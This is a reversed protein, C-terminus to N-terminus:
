EARTDMIKEQTQMKAWAISHANTQKKMEHIEKRGIKKDKSAHMMGMKVYKERTSVCLKGSKDTKLIIIEGEQIRKRLSTLGAQQEETLNSKQEGDKKCREQSYNKYIWAHIERRMETLKEEKTQLPKPM